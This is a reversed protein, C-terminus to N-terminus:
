LERERERSRQNAFRNLLMYLIIINSPREGNFKPGDLVWTKLGVFVEPATPDM